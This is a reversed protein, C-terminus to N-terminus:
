RFRPAVETIFTELAEPEFPARLALIVWDAGADVYQAVHEAIRDPSGLLTGPRVFDAAIGFRRKLVTDIQDDPAAVIGVNVGCLFTSPDPANALVIDRKRAFDTPSPFPTNWADGIRGALKLGIQEGSAGVWIRPPTQVPKPDCRAERMTFFEGDYDTTENTWLSRVIEVAEKMRRLRVAPREFPIGYADYEPQHWGAGIGMELRGGSLHDITVGANALVAPHRYGASYVLCGVRVHSTLAALAAHTTVAEHCDGEVPVTAAYFHDWTSVWDFGLREALSWMTRLEDITCHQPGVHIGFRVGSV